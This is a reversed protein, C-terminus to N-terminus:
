RVIELLILSLACGTMMVIFLRNGQHVHFTELSYFRGHFGRCKMAQQVREARNWARVFLMGILYAYTRYSHLSTGPQFGRVRAARRLRQYEEQFVFIYRYTMLVLQVITDSIGINGLTQGFTSINMTTVLATFVMLIAISKLSIRASLMVGERSCVFPGIHYLPTGEYTLPLFIWILILFTFVVSLRKILMRLNLRALIILMGAFFSGLFLTFFESSVALIVSFITASIIKMGPDIRHIWSTGVAFPETEM